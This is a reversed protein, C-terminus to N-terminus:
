RIQLGEIFQYVIALRAIPDDLLLLQQRRSMSFPLLEALRFGVWSADGFRATIGAYHHGAHDLLRRLVDVLTLYEDPLDLSPEDGLLEVGAVALQNPQVDVSVIRFRQEGTATIGLLGDHRMHWDTISAVTGVSETAAVEGVERGSSILVVGFGCNSKLCDSIMELYRPEFIRLPLPGGPFLVTHLPFLPIKLHPLSM